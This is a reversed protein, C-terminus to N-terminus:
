IFSEKVIFERYPEFVIKSAKNWDEIIAYLREYNQAGYLMVKNGFDLATHKPLEKDLLKYMGGVYISNPLIDKTNIWDHTFKSNLWFWGSLDGKYFQYMVFSGAKFRKDLSNLDPRTDWTPLCKDISEIIQKNLEKNNYTCIEYTFCPDYSYGLAIKGLPVCPAIYEIYPM